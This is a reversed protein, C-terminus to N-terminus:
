IHLKIVTQIKPWIRTIHQDDALFSVLIINLTLTLVQDSQFIHSMRSCLPSHHLWCLWDDKRQVFARVCACAVGIYASIDENWETSIANTYHTHKYYTHIYIIYYIFNFCIHSMSWILIEMLRLGETSAELKSDDPGHWSLHVRGNFSFASM